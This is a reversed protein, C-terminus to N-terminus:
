KKSKLDKLQKKNKKKWYDQLRKDNSNKKAKKERGQIQDKKRQIQIKNLASELNGIQKDLSEKKSDSCNKKSQKLKRIRLKLTEERKLSPDQIDKIKRQKNAIRQDTNRAKKRKKRKVDQRWKIKQEILFDEINPVHYSRRM